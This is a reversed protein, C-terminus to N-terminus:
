KGTSGYGGTRDSDLEPLEDVEIIEVPETKKLQLQAIRQGHNITVFNNGNNHLLIKVENEFDRDIVAVANALGTNLKYALSSRIFIEVHYGSEPQMLLGTDIMVTQHPSIMVTGLADEIVAHIDMGASFKTQQKPTPTDTLKEIYLKPM